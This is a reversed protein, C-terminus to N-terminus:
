PISLQMFALASFFAPGFSGADNGAFTVSIRGFSAGALGRLGFALWPTAAFGVDGRLYAAATLRNGSSAQLPESTEGSYRILLAAGGAGATAFWPSGERQLRVLWLAGAFYTRLTATGEVETVTSASLPAGLDLAMGWRDTFFHHLSVSLQVAAAAGGPSYLAGVGLQAGTSAAVGDSMPQAATANSQADPDADAHESREGLLSTRLLEATQLAILDHDPGEASEDVIVQRLLSRGSTVDAMWVEVGKGSPLM